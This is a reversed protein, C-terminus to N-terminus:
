QSVVSMKKLSNKILTVFYKMNLIQWAAPFAVLIVVSPGILYWWVSGSYGIVSLKSLNKSVWGSIDKLKEKNVQVLYGFTLLM